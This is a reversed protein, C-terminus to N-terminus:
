STGEEYDRMESATARRASIIRVSASGAEVEEYTHIVVLFAGTGSWGLTVWRLEGDSHEDDPVTAALPDLFVSAAQSFAVGHKTLNLSAKQPDWEFKFRFDPV